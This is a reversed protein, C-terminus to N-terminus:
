RDRDDYRHQRGHDHFFSGQRLTEVAGRDGDALLEGVALRIDRQYAKLMLRVGRVVTTDQNGELFVAHVANGEIFALILTRAPMEHHVCGVRDVGVVAFAIQVPVKRREALATHL